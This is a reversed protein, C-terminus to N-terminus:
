VQCQFGYDLYQQAEQKSMRKLLVCVTFSGFQKGGREYGWDSIDSRDFTVTQWARVTRITEPTDALVGTFTHGNQEFPTVWMHENEDGDSFKVKLKFNEAGQPPNRALLLFTDLSARAQTIASNMEPDEASVRIVQDSVQQAWVFGPLILLLAVTKIRM